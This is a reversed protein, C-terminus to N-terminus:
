YTPEQVIDISAYINKIRSMYLPMVRLRKWPANCNGDFAGAECHQWGESAGARL